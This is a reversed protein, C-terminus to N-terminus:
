VRFGSLRFAQFGSVGFGQFRLRTEKTTQLKPEDLERKQRHASLCLNEHARWSSCCLPLKRLFKDIHM